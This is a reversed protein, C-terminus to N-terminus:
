CGASQHASGCRLKPGKSRSGKDLIVMNAGCFECKALGRLVNRHTPGGNGKSMGRGKSAAQARWFVDADVIAPFYGEIPADAGADSGGAPTGQPRLHRPRGPQLDDERYLQREM